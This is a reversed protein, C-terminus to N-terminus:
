VASCNFTLTATKNGIPANYPIYVRINLAMQNQNNLFQLQSCVNRTNNGLGNEERLEIWGGPATGTCSSNYVVTGFSLSPSSGGGVFNVANKDSIVSVSLNVNGINDLRLKLKSPANGVVTWNLAIDDTVLVAGPKGMEVYGVGFDSFPQSVNLMATQMVSVNVVGLSGFGTIGPLQLIDTLNGLMALTLMAGGVAVVMAAILLVALSKNTIVMDKIVDSNRYLFKDNKANISLPM